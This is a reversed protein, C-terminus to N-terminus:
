KINRPIKGELEEQRFQPDLGQQYSMVFPNHVQNVFANRHDMEYNISPNKVRFLGDPNYQFNFGRNQAISALGKAIEYREASRRNRLGSMTKDAAAVTSRLLQNAYNQFEQEDRANYVKDLLGYYGPGVTRPSTNYRFSVVGDQVSQPMRGLVRSKSNVEDIVQSIPANYKMQSGEWKNIQRWMEPSVSASQSPVPGQRPSESESPDEQYNFNYYDKYAM